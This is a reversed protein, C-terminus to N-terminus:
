SKKKGKEKWHARYSLYALLSFTGAMVLWAWQPVQNNVTGLDRFFTGPKDGNQVFARQSKPWHELPDYDGMNILTNADPHGHAIMPHPGQGSSQFSVLQAVQDASLGMLPYM